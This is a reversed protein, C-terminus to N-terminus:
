KMGIFKIFESRNRVFIVKTDKNIYKFQKSMQNLEFINQFMDQTIQNSVVAVRESRTWDDKLDKQYVPEKADFGWSCQTMIDIGARKFANLWGWFDDVEWEFPCDNDLLWEYLKSRNM